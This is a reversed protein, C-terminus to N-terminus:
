DALVNSSCVDECLMINVIISAHEPLPKIVFKNLTTHDTWIAISNSKDFNNDSDTM